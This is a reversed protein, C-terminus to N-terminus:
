VWRGDVLCPKLNIDGTRLFTYVKETLSEANEVQTELVELQDAVRDLWGTSVMGPVAAGGKPFIGDDILFQIHDVMRRVREL